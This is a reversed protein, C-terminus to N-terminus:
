TIVSRPISDMDWRDQIPLSTRVVLSVYLGSALSRLGHVVPFQFSKRWLTLLINGEIPLNPKGTSLVLHFLNILNPTWKISNNQRVHVVLRIHLPTCVWVPNLQLFLFHELEVDSWMIKSDLLYLSYFSLNLQHWM